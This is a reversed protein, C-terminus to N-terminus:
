YGKAKFWDRLQRTVATGVWTDSHINPLEVERQFHSPLEFFFVVGGFVPNNIYFSCNGFEDSGHFGWLYWFPVDRKDTRTRLYIRSWQPGNIELREGIWM